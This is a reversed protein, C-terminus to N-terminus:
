FAFEGRLSLRTHNTTVGEFPKKGNRQYNNNFLNYNQRDFLLIIAFGNEFKLGASVNFSIGNNLAETGKDIGNSYGIYYDYTSGIELIPCYGKTGILNEFPSVRIGLGPRIYNIRHKLWKDDNISRTDFNEHAYGFRAYIGVPFAVPQWGIKGMIELDRFLDVGKFGFVHKGDYDWKQENQKISNFRIPITPLPLVPGGKKIMAPILFPLQVITNGWENGTEIGVGYFIQKQAKIPMTGLLIALFLCSLRIKKM